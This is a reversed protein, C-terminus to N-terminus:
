FSFDYYEERYGIAIRQGNKMADGKLVWAGNKRLTFVEKKADPQPEFEYSQSESMGNSDTRVPKDRQVVVTGKGVEVITGAHRDTWMLFTVGMGVTPEADKSGAMVHNVLSGTGGGLTMAKM